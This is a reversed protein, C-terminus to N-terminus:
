EISETGRKTERPAASAGEGQPPVVVVASTRPWRPGRLLRRLCPPAAARAWALAESLSLKGDGDPDMAALAMRRLESAMAFAFAGLVALNLAGVVGLLAGSVALSAAEGSGLAEGMVEHLAPAM